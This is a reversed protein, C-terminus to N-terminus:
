TPSCHHRAHHGALEGHQVFTFMVHHYDVPNGDVMRCVSYGGEHLLTRHYSCLTVLNPLSTEGQRSWHQIHHAHLFHEHACGPLRCGQDRANMARRMAAPVVRSRRGISLPERNRGELLQVVGADCCLREVTALPIAGGGEIYASTEASDDVTRHAAEACTGQADTAAM